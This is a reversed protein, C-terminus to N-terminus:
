APIGGFLFPRFSLPLFRRKQDSSQSSIVKSVSTTNGKKLSVISNWLGLEGCGFMNRKRGVSVSEAIVGNGNRPTM